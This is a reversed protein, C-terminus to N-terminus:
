LDNGEKIRKNRRTQAEFGSIVDFLEEDIGDKRTRHFAINLDNLLEKINNEARQMAALRSANESALSEACAQYISVFLYERILTKLTNNEKEILEPLNNTLWPLKTLKHVWSEDLPLLRQSVPAYAAGAIPRNYFLYLDSVEGHNNHRESAVLIQGVLPTIAKVSNPVTFLDALLLGTGELRSHIREGVSFVKIKGSLASLTKVALDAVIENFQGVLGQDSGFVVAVIIKEDAQKAKEITLRASDIGRFCVSLGLELTHYYEDLARVSQEFQSINSAALSKMTVVVSQLDKAIKIKRRLSLITDHM